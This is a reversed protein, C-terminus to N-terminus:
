RDTAREGSAAPGAAPSDQRHRLSRKRVGVSLGVIVVVLGGLTLLISRLLISPEDAGGLVSADAGNPGAAAPSAAPSRGTLVRLEEEEVLSEARLDDWDTSVLLDVGPNQGKVQCMCPGVLFACTEWITDPNIGKGILAYLVRGRGFIPFAMPEAFTRLDPETGLLMNVLMAEAPDDKRVRVISFAVRLRPLGDESSGDDYLSDMQPPLELTKELKKLETSLLAAAADDQARDGSILLVWVASEGGRLRRAIRRRVPSDVLREVVDAKLPGAWVDQEIPAYRPYRVVMWPLTPKAQAKWAAQLGPPLQSEVDVVFVRCNAPVDASAKAELGDVVAQDAVKLGGRHFVLVDYADAPWRELAYRFVPVSCAWGPAAWCVLVGIV